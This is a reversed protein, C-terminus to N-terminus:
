PNALRFFLSGTPPTIILNNMGNATSFSYDSTTWGATAALNSNQQLTYSGMDPWSLIVSNGARTITM